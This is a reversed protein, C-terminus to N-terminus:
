SANLNGGQVMQTLIEPNEQLHALEEADLGQLIEVYKPYDQPNIGAKQLLQQIAPNIATTQQANGSSQAAQNAFYEELYQKIEKRNPLQMIDIMEEVIKYNEQTIKMNAITETASLTFAKSNIVGDGAQVVADVKPFYGDRAYRGSNFRFIVPGKSRDMNAQPTMQNPDQQMLQSPDPEKEEGTAGLFIIRDDDYFELTTWDILEYLLEFGATRDAKKLSQRREGQQRLEVLGGLTKVNSPPSGGQNVDYNGVTEKIHDRIFTITDKLGGNLNGLGGLRRVNNIQNPKTKWIAGPVNEAESEDSLANEDMLIIDNGMFNDNLITTALVRDASDVLELIPDLESRDWFSKNIPIKCYKVFPYLKNQRGTNRWYKPIYRIEKNDIIISCAIDGSEWTVTETITKGDVVYEYTDSGDFPQRFWHEIVQLTDTMVDHTTTDYIETQSHFGDAALDFVTIGLRKLDEVFIRGAKIKHLRYVYDIYECDDLEAASPDPFINAPDPNGIVIKGQAQGDMLSYDFAVKWFANGLKNLQRENQTNMSALKNDEVVYQVVYQRQKAKMSDLDDDRGRFEFDPVDPIIQSEVHIFPDMIIAPVFPLGREECSDKIEQQTKHRGEYYDNFKLWKDVQEQRQNMAYAYLYRITNVRSDPTSYDYIRGSELKVSQLKEKKPQKKGRSFLAM